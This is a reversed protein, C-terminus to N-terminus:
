ENRELHDLNLFCIQDFLNGCKSRNSRILFCHKRVTSILGRSLKTFNGSKELLQVSTSFITLLKLMFIVFLALLLQFFIEKTSFIELESATTVFIAVYNKTKKQSIAVRWIWRFTWKEEEPGLNHAFWTTLKLSFDDSPTCGWIHKDIM